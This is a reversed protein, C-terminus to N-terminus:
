RHNNEVIACLSLVIRVEAGVPELGAHLGSCDARVPEPGAGTKLWTNVRVNILQFM